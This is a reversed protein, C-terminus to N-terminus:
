RELVRIPRSNDFNWDHLSDRLSVECPEGARSVVGKLVVRETPVRRSMVPLLVEDGRRLARAGRGALYVTRGDAGRSDLLLDARLTSQTGATGADLPMPPANELQMVLRNAAEDLVQQLLSLQRTTSGEYGGARAAPPLFPIEIGFLTVRKDAKIHRDRTAQREIWVPQLAYALTGQDISLVRGSIGVKVAEERQSYEIGQGMVRGGVKKPATRYEVTVTLELRDTASIFNGRRPTGPLNNDFDGSERYDRIARRSDNLYTDVFTLRAGNGAARQLAIVAQERLDRESVGVGGHTVFRTVVEYRRQYAVSGRSGSPDAQPWDTQPWDTQPWGARPQALATLPLAVICALALRILTPNM